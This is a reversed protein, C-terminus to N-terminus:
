VNVSGVQFAFGKEGVIADYGLEIDAIFGDAQAQKAADVIMKDDATPRGFAINERISSSFLMGEQPVLGIHRRIDKIALSRLDSGCIFVNGNTPDFFRLLLNFITSKGSGSPGVIAIHEGVKIEFSVDSIASRSMASPYAFGVSDFACASQSRMDLIQPNQIERLNEKAELLQAIRDAAGAARQLDGALESLFGTSSAVLFAYFVFSSLDGASIRGALLDQGGIWLILGIGVFVVFIVAGSLLGRLRVQDLGANLAESVKKDFIDQRLTQRGFAQVIYISSLTEEAEVAVGALCDQMQRSASRLKRALTILPLIIVPVVIIVVLSMKPSSIVLMFLGGIVLLTNRAAQSLTSTMVLQMVSTDTIISSLINGKRANEYWAASLSLVNKFIARRVDAFVREGIENVMTARLYSGIALFAAIATTGLVAQRLLVKDYKGLGQDILFALGRGMGLLSGAIILLALVAFFIRGRHPIM